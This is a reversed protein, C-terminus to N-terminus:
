KKKNEHQWKDISIFDNSEFSLVELSCDTKRAKFTYFNEWRLEGNFGVNIEYISDRDDSQMSIGRKHNTLSDILRNKEKIEPLELIKQEILDLTCKEDSLIKKDIEEKCSITFVLLIPLIKRFM